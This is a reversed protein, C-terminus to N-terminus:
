YGLTFRQRIHKPTEVEDLIAHALDGDTITSPGGSPPRVPEEAGLRYKGTPEGEALIEAPSVFTWDLDTITRILDLADAAGLAGDKWEAPFEESDVLRGGGDPEKLSGAGGVVVLRRIGARRVGDIISETIRLTSARIEPDDWGPNTSSIVADHGAVLRATVGPDRVDGAEIRLNKAPAIKEPHRAIATVEHGRALAETLLRSGVRGSAGILAIKM